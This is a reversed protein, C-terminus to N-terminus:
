SLMLKAARNAFIYFIKCESRQGRLPYGLYALYMKLLDLARTLCLSRTMLSSMQNFFCVCVATQFLHTRSPFGDSNYCYPIGSLMVLTHTGQGRITTGLVM